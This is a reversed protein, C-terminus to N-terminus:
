DINRYLPYEKEINGQNSVEFFLNLPYHKLYTGRVKPGWSLVILHRRLAEDKLIEIEIYRGLVIKPEQSM